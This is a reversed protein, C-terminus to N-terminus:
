ATERLKKLNRRGAYSTLVEMRKIRYGDKSHWNREVPFSFLYLFYLNFTFQKGAFVKMYLLEWFSYKHTESRIPFQFSASSKFCIYIAASPCAGFSFVCSVCPCQTGDFGPWKISSLQTRGGLRKARSTCNALSNIPTIFTWVIERSKFVTAPANEFVLSLLTRILSARM